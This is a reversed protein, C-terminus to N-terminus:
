SELKLLLGREKVKRFMSYFFWFVLVLYVLDLAFSMVLTWVDVTGSAIIARMGEFVYTSPLAYAVWQLAAPLASVPYFVATFPQVLFIIGFALVQATTGFRLIIAVVFLGLIWGFILLSVVFPLTYFGFQFINFHYLVLAILGLVAGQTLIRVLGLVVTSLLFEIIRVPTVFLNLLNKEWVDELFAITVAQQSRNLLEWFILAGLLFSIINVNNLNLKALYVSLFGWVLLELVPWFFVDMLRPFSRPYLYLQRIILAKIRHFKM